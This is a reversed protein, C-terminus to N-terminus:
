PNIVSSPKILRLDLDRFNMAHSPDRNLIFGEIPRTRSRYGQPPTLYKAKPFYKQHWDDWYNPLKINLEFVAGESYREDGEALHYLAVRLNHKEITGSKNKLYAVLENSEEVIACTNIDMADQVKHNLFDDQKFVTNTPLVKSPNIMKKRTSINDDGLIDRLRELIKERENIKEELKLKAKHVSEQYKNIIDNQGPLDRIQKLYDEYEIIIEENEHIDDTFYNVAYDYITEGNIDATFPDAGHDLFLKILNFKENLTFTDKFLIFLFHLPTHNFITAQKPNEGHQLLYKIKDYLKEYSDLPSYRGNKCERIVKHLRSLGLRDTYESGQEMQSRLVNNNSTASFTNETILNLFSVSTIICFIISKKM